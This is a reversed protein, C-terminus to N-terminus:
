IHNYKEPNTIEKLVAAVATEVTTAVKKTAVAAV